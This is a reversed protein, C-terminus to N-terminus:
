IGLYLVCVCNKRVVIELFRQEVEEKTLAEMADVEVFDSGIPAHLSRKDFVARSGRLTPSNANLSYSASSNTHQIFSSGVHIDGTNLLTTGNNAPITRTRQPSEPNSEAAGM